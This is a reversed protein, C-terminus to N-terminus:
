GRQRAPALAPAPTQLPPRHRHVVPMFHGAPRGVLRGDRVIFRGRLLTHVTRGRLPLLRPISSPHRYLLEPLATSALDVIALDAHRGITIAGKRDALGLRAAPGEALLEGIRSLGLEPEEEALALLVGATTQCGPFGGWADFASQGQRLAPPAPSHDSAVWDVEGAVLAALLDRRQRESRLPPACKGENGLGCADEDTLTLYHPCTEASVDLGAARAGAVVALGDGSSVHVIHLRCGAEAAIAIARSIAEVEAVVPRSAIFDSIGIREEALARAALAATIAESEAHVAVVMGVAAARKMGEFLTLDDARPFEKCGSECLFAKLGVVGCEALEEIADLQGPVLGGWLAFDTWSDGRAANLKAEVAARDVTAPVSNLPMDIATTGGGAALAASGSEFGEWCKRGPDNFHVHADITGPLVYLGHADLEERGGALDPEVAAVWGEVIGVDAELIGGPTVVRGGRIVRDYSM